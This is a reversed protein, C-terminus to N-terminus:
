QFISILDFLIKNHLSNINFSTTMKSLSGGSDHGDLWLHHMLFPNAFEDQRNGRAESRIAGSTQESELGEKLRQAASEEPILCIVETLTTKEDVDRATMWVWHGTGSMDFTSIQHCSRWGMWHTSSSSHPWRLTLGPNPINQNMGWKKVPGIELWGGKYSSKEWGVYMPLRTKLEIWPLWNQLQRSSSTLNQFNLLVYGQSFGGESETGVWLHHRAVRLGVRCKSAIGVMGTLILARYSSGIVRESGSAWSIRSLREWSKKNKWFISIPIICVSFAKM